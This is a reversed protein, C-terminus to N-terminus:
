LLKQLILEVGTFLQEIKPLKFAPLQVSVPLDGSTLGSRTYKSHRFNVTSTNVPSGQVTTYPSSLPSTTEVLVGETVTKTSTWSSHVQLASSSLDGGQFQDLYDVIPYFWDIVFSWPIEEWVTGITNLLGLQRKLIEWSLYDPHALYEPKISVLAGYVDTRTTTRQLVGTQRFLGFTSSDPNIDYLTSALTAHGSTRGVSTFKQDTLARTKAAVAGLSSMVTSVDKIFPKWGFKWELDLNVLTALLQKPDRPLGLIWATRSKGLRQRTRLGVSQRYKGTQHDWVARSVASVLKNLINLMSDRTQNLEYLSALGLMLQPSFGTTRAKALAAGSNVPIDGPFFNRFYYGALGGDWISEVLCTGHTLGAGAVNTYLFSFSRYNVMVEWKDHSVANNGERNGHTDTMTERSDAGGTYGNNFSNIVNSTYSSFPSKPLKFPNGSTATVTARVQRSTLIDQSGQNRTRTPMILDLM